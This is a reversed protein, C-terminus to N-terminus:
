TGQTLRYVALLYQEIAKPDDSLFTAAGYVWELLGVLEDATTMEPPKRLHVSLLRRIDGPADEGLYRCTLEVLEEYITRGAHSSGSKSGQAM